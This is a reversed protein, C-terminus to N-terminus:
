RTTKWTSAGRTLFSWVKVPLLLITSIAGYLVTFHQASATTMGKIGRVSVFTIVARIFIMSALAAGSLLEGWVALDILCLISTLLFLFPFITRNVGALLPYWGKKYASRLTQVCDRYKDRNWRAQQILYDKLNEPVKTLVVAEEAFDIPYGRQNAINTLRLDDGNTCLKGRYSQNQYDDWGEELFSTSYFSAPGPVLWIHGYVNESAREVSTGLLYRIKLLKTLWSAEPNSVGMNGCVGAAGDSMKALFQEIIDECPISDGDLLYIYDCTKKAAQFARNHAKRKGENRYRTFVQWGLLKQVALLNDLKKREESQNEGRFSGDDVLYCKLRDKPYSLFFINMVTKHLVADEVNHVPVIIGVM